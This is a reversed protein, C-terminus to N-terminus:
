VATNFRVQTLFQQTREEKPDDFVESPTGLEVVVGDAMFVVKDAVEKAFQMEHTVIIMTQGSDALQRMVNLVDGVLEPDLASTPEDFLLLDPSLAMARAIGVRQQQGGSLQVPYVGAKDAMGVKELVSYAMTEALKKPVKRPTVLGEMVNQLVTMHSFLEYSQFVMATKRAIERSQHTGIRSLDYNLDGLAYIGADPRELLNLCRLFTTKGSGSPGIICVVEGKHITLDVNKLIENKGFSKQLGRIEAQIM